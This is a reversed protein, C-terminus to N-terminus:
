VSYNGSIYETQSLVSSAAQQAKNNNHTKPPTTNQQPKTNTKKVDAKFRLAKTM